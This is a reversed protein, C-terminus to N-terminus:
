KLKKLIHNIEIENPSRYHWNNDDEMFNVGSGKITNAIIVKPKTNKKNFANKIQIFNHGDVVVVDWGFSNFKKDLPKIQLIEDSRGTAQWKNYDIILILNTLNQAAAFMAAEWTTGENCEGDSIMVVTKYNNKNIKNALALGCGFSFGHGLSGTACEVGKISPSPHEEFPSGVECYSMFKKKSIYKKRYLASYLTSAAHGKSLIFKNKKKKDIIFEYVFSVLDACSLSSGLHATKKLYSLYLVDKRIKKSLTITNKIKEDM